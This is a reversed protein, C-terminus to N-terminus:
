DLKPLRTSYIACNSIINLSSSTLFSEGPRRALKVTSLTKPGAAPGHDDNEDAGEIVATVARPQPKGGAHIMATYSATTGDMMGLEAFGGRAAALKDLRCLTRLMQILANYRSSRRWPEKVAKIHKSETISSCLGNPSGFLCISYRYHLLSHQRPLSIFDGNVGATGIFFGRYSHFRDLADQLQDLANSTIANRRAIQCFDLFASLCKVVESPVHGAIAALYVQM